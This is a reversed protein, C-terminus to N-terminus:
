SPKLVFDKKLGRLKKTFAGIKKYECSNIVSILCIKQSIDITHIKIVKILKLEVEEEITLASVFAAGLGLKVATKLSEISSVQLITKFKYIDVQNTNLLQLLHSTEITKLTLSIYDLRYLDKKNLNNKKALPHIPSLIFFISDTMYHEIRIKLNENLFEYIEANVIAIDLQQAMLRTALNENSDILFKLNLQFDTQSCFFLLKLFLSTSLPQAIGVICKKRKNSQDQSLFRCSEECLALIRESYKLFIEGNKTLLFNNTEKNVLQVGLNTELIVLQKNLASQSMYLLTAAKVINQHAAITSLIRLQHLTFPFM